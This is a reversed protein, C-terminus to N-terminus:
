ATTRAGARFAKGPSETPPGELAHTPSSQSSTRPGKCTRCHVQATSRCGPSLRGFDARPLVRNTTLMEVGGARASYRFEKGRVTTFVEGAHQQVRAWIERFDTM